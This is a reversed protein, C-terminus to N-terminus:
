SLAFVLVRANPPDAVYLHRRADVAVAVNSVDRALQFRGFTGLLAGGDTFMHVCRDMPVSFGLACCVFVKREDDFCIGSPYHLEVGARADESGWKHVFVGDPLLVQM